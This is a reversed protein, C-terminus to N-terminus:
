SGRANCSFFIQFMQTTYLKSLQTDPGRASFYGKHTYVTCQVIYMNTNCNVNYVRCHLMYVNSYLFYIPVGFGFQSWSIKIYLSRMIVLLNPLLTLGPTPWINKSQSFHMCNQAVLFSNLNLSPVNLYKKTYM